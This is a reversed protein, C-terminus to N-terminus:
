RVDWLQLVILLEACVDLREETHGWRRGLCICGMECGEWITHKKFIYSTDINIICYIIYRNCCFRFDVFLCNIKVVKLSNIYNKYCLLLLVNIKHLLSQPPSDQRPWVGLRWSYPQATPWPNFLELEDQVRSGLLSDSGDAVSTSSGLHM